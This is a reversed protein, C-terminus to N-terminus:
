KPSKGLHPYVQPELLISLVFTARRPMRPFVNGWFVAVHYGLNDPQIWAKCPGKAQPYPAVTWVENGWDTNLVRGEEFRSGGGCLHVFQVAYTQLIMSKMQFRCGRCPRSIRGLTCSM